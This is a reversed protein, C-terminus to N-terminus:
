KRISKRKIAVFALLGIGAFLASWEVEPVSTLLAMSVPLYVDGFRGDETDVFSQVSWGPIIGDGIPRDFMLPGSIGLRLVDPLPNLVVFDIAFPNGDQLVIGPWAPYDGDNVQTYTVGAVTMTLTLGGAIPNVVSWGDELFSIAGAPNYSVQVPLQEMGDTTFLLGTIDLHAAQIPLVCCFLATILLKKINM